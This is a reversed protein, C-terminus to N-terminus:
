FNDSLQRLVVEDTMTPNERVLIFIPDIHAKDEELVDSIEEPTLGKQQKKRVQSILKLIEGKAEGKALGSEWGEQFKEEGRVELADEMNFQTFIMNLVETGHEKLFDILIGDEKAAKIGGMIADDRSLGAAIGNKIAEILWSYEYIPRCEALIPHNELLNINVVKVKLELMPEETKELYSDSLKLIKEKPFPADGNYFVYFEPTPLPLLGTRYLLKPEILKEMTRGYYIADRLPMNANITSQHESIVLVKGKVTFAMDNKRAMFLVGSLTTYDIDEPSIDEGPELARYLLAANKPDSFLATFASSKVERNSFEKTKKDPIM